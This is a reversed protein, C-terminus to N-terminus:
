LPPMSLTRPRFPRHGPKPGATVPETGPQVGRRLCCTRSTDASQADDTRPCRALLLHSTTGVAHHPLHTLEILGNIRVPAHAGDQAIEPTMAAASASPEVHDQATIVNDHRACRRRRNRCQPHPRGRSQTQHAMSCSVTRQRAPQRLCARSEAPSADDDIQMAGSTAALGPPVRSTSELPRSM